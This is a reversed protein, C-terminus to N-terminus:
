KEKVIVVPCHAHAVCHASVSGLLNEVIPSHGRNGMVLLDFHKSKEVLILSPYGEEISQTVGVPSASGYAGIITKELRLQAIKKPHDNLEDLDLNLGIALLEVTPFPTQWTTTVEVTGGVQAALAAAWRLAAISTASGDVGVLIKRIM